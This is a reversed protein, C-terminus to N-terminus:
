TGTSRKYDELTYQKKVMRNAPDPSVVYYTVTVTIKQIGCDFQYVDPNGNKIPYPQHNDPDIPETKIEITYDGVESPISIQEYFDPERDTLEKSYDIYKQEKIFEM